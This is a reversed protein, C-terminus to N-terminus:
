PARRRPGPERRPGAPATPFEERGPRLPPLGIHATTQYRGRRRGPRSPAGRHRADDSEFALNSNIRAHQSLTGAALRRKADGALDKPDRVTLYPTAAALCLEIRQFPQDLFGVVAFDFAATVHPWRAGDRLWRRGRSVDFDLLGDLVLVDREFATVDLDAADIFGDVRVALALRPDALFHDLLPHL